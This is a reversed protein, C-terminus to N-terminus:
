IPKKRVPSFSASQESVYFYTNPLIELYKSNKEEFDIM